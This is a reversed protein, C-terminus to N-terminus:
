LADKSLDDLAEHIRDRIEQALRSIQSLSHQVEKAELPITEDDITKGNRHVIDHRTECISSFPGLDLGEARKGIMAHLVNRITAPNHFTLNSLVSLIVGSVGKPHQAIQKLTYKQKGNLEDVNAVMSAMFQPTSVVLTRVTTGIFTELLTVAHVYVMKNVTYAHVQGQGLQLLSTAIAIEHVFDSYLRNYSHRELWRYEAEEDLWALMDAYEAELEEWGPTYEDADPNGLRGRIWEARRESELEFLHEKMSGM